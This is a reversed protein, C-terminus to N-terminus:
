KKKLFVRDRIIKQHKKGLLKLDHYEAKWFGPQATDTYYLADSKLVFIFKKNLDVESVIKDGELILLKAQPDADSLEIIKPAPRSPTLIVKIMFVMLVLLFAVFAIQVIGFIFKM